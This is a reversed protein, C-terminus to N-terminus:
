DLSPAGPGLAHGRCRYPLFAIISELRRLTRVVPAAAAAVAAADCTNAWAGLCAGRLARRRAGLGAIVLLAVDANAVGLDARARRQQRRGAAAFERMATQGFATILMGSSNLFSKRTMVM